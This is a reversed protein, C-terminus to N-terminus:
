KPAVVPKGLLQIQTTLTFREQGAGYTVEVYSAACGTVPSPANATVSKGSPAVTLETYSWKSDRYDRTPAECRFIRASVMTTDSTVTFDCSGNPKPKRTWRLAPMLKKDAVSRVFAAMTNLVRTRDELGHGSNPVYLVSKEGVLDDWYLNLSDQSWYRDNTGLLIMKPLTLKARYSYPDELEILRGSRPASLLKDFGASSYDAVEDSSKGYHELQHTLQAKINLIDIVMPAIGVIRKDGSAGCLWATWGRKSAGTVVFRNIAGLKEQKTLAQITDIAKIVAKAMPFHLPWSEDGTELFKIWTRVILEDEVLGEYLPQNPINHIVAFPAGTSQAIMTAILDNEQSGNGGTNLITCFGTRTVVKPVFLQVRHTWTIGQWVQSTMKMDYVIGGAIDRKEVLSWKYDPEAKALYQYLDAKAPQIPVATALALGATTILLNRRNM